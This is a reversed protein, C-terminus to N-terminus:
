NGCCFKFCLLEIAIIVSIDLCLDHGCYCIGELQMDFSVSGANEYCNRVDFIRNDPANESFRYINYFMDVNAQFFLLRDCLCHKYLSMETLDTLLIYM